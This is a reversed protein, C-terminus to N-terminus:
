GGIKEHLLFKQLCTLLIKKVDDYNEQFSSLPLPNIGKGVEITFGPRQFEQIFWDRFGAHSDIYQIGKYGSVREMAEAIDKSQKPEYGEYGWYIEKGQSHLALVMHFKEQIVLNALAIAEPETLPKHGPYDRPAPAKAYKRAKEIEWKAPFQNNLDVGNINAKWWTIHHNEKNLKEIIKKHLSPPGHLVLDVGDPNVMPVFSLTIHEFLFLAEDSGRVLELAFENIFYMLILSTLWENGHFSANVHVKKIGEGISLEYIEKGLVSEGITRKQIFPYLELLHSIDTKMKEFFYNQNKQIIPNTVYVYGERQKLQKMMQGRKVEM